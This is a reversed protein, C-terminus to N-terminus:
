LTKLNERIHEIEQKYEKQKELLLNVNKSIEEQELASNVESGELQSLTSEKFFYGLMTGLFGVVITLFIETQSVETPRFLSYIFLFLFIFISTTLFIFQALKIYGKFDKCLISIQKILYKLFIFFILAILLLTLIILIQTLFNLNM